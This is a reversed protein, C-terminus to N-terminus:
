TNDSLQCTKLRKLTTLSNALKPAWLRKKSLCKESPSHYHQCQPGLGVPGLRWSHCDRVILTYKRLINIERKCIKVM